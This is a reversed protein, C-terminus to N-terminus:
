SSRRSPAATGLALDEVHEQVQDLVRIPHDALFLQQEGDPRLLHDTVGGHV